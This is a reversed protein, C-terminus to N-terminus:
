GVRSCIVSYLDRTMRGELQASNTIESVTAFSTAAVFTVRPIASAFMFFTHLLVRTQQTTNRVCVCAYAITARIHVRVCAYGRMRMRVCVCAYAHM